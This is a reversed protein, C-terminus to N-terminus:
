FKWFLPVYFVAIVFFWFLVPLGFKTYDTFRYGGPGMVILNVPTAVPTLLAAASAVAVSMLMSQPSINMDKAAALAIPIVIIATATNSILQGLLATLVFFGAFLAHPGASGVLRVVVDAMQRAAGTDTMATSLPIMAGVQIVTTWNIARYAQDVTVLGLLVVFTAGILTAMASPIFNTALAVVMLVLVAIASYAGKGMPVAQRRVVEPSDVVLVNPDALHEDLAKWTGQLLVTDGVGLVTEGPEGDSGHRHVALVVLDGSETIMGPFVHTGILNSRPPIMVEALGSVRNFLMDPSTSDDAARLALHADAALSAAADASGRVLIVDNPMIEPRASPGGTDGALVAVCALDPYKELDLTAHKVGVLPSGSRVRLQFLGDALRYRESLTRAHRSLDAPIYQGGRRPLLRRGLLVNIAITGLILPIGAIAFEFYSFPKVGASAAAEAALVNVPSGTLALLSGAHSAFVFPMLLQSPAEKLRVATVMVVPLLAAVAGNPTILATLLAVALSLWVILRTRSSGAQTLVFQSAWATVGTTELAGAVVFLSALFIVVPDGLGATAQQATLVGTVYLALPTLLSVIVVPVSSGVFLVVVGVIIAFTIASASL